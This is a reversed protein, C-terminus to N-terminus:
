LIEKCNERKCGNWLDQLSWAVKCNFFQLTWAKKWKEVRHSEIFTLTMWILTLISPEQCSHHIELMIYLLSVSNQNPVRSIYNPQRDDYWTQFSDLYLGFGIDFTRKLVIMFNLEKGQIGTMCLMGLMLKLLAVPQSFSRLHIQNRLCIHSQSFTLTMWVFYFHLTWHERDDYWIQFFSAQLYRFSALKFFFFFPVFNFSYPESGQTNILLSKKDCWHTEFAYWIREVDILFKQSITWASTWDKWWDHSRSRLDLDSLWIVFHQTWNDTMMGLESWILEYIDSHMGVNLPKSATLLVATIERFEM